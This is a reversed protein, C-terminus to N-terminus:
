VIEVLMFMFWVLVLVVLLRGVLFRYDVVILKEVGIVECVLRCLLRLVLCVLVLVFWLLRFRFM